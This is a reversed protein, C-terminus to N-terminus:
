PGSGCSPKGSRPVASPGQHGFLPTPSPRTPSPRGRSRGEPQPGPPTCSSRLPTGHPSSVAAGVAAARSRPPGALPSQPWRVGGGGAPVGTGALNSGEVNPTFFLFRPGLFCFSFLGPLGRFRLFLSSSNPESRSSYRSFDSLPPLSYPVPGPRFRLRFCRSFFSF